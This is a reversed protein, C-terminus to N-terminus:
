AAIIEARCDGHDNIPSERFHHPEVQERYVQEGENEAGGGVGGTGDPSLELSQSSNGYSLFQNRKYRASRKSSNITNYGGRPTVYRPTFLSNNFVSSPTLVTDTRSTNLMNNGDVGSSSSSVPAGSFSSPEFQLQSQPGLAGAAGPPGAVVSPLTTSSTTATTLVASTGIGYNNGYSGAQGASGTATQWPTPRNYRDRYNPDGFSTSLFSASLLSHAQAYMSDPAAPSQPISSPPLNEVSNRLFSSQELPTDSLFSTTTTGQQPAQAAGAGFSTPPGVPPQQSMAGAPANATSGGVLFSGANSATAGGSSSTTHSLYPAFQTAPSAALPTTTTPVLRQQNHAGPSSCAAASGPGAFPNKTPKSSSSSSVSSSSTGGYMVDLKPSHSLRVQHYSGLDSQTCNDLMRSQNSQQGGRVPPLAGVVTSSRSHNIAAPPARLPRNANASLSASPLTEALPTPIPRLGNKDDVRVGHSLYSMTGIDLEPRSTAAALNDEVTTSPVDGAGAAAPTAKRPRQLEPKIGDSLRPEDPIAALRPASVSYTAGGQEHQTAVIGKSVSRSNHHDGGFNYGSDPSAASPPSSSCSSASASSSSSKSITHDSLTPRLELATTSLTRGFGAFSGEVTQVGAASQASPGCSVSHSNYYGNGDGPAGAERVPGWLGSSSCSSAASSSGVCSSSFLGDPPSAPTENTHAGEKLPSSKEKKKKGGIQFLDMGFKKKKKESTSTGEIFDVADDLPGSHLDPSQSSSSVSSKKKDKKKKKSSSTPSATSDRATTGEAFNEAGAETSTASKTNGVQPTSTTDVHLDRSASAPTASADADVSNDAGTTAQAQKNSTKKGQFVSSLFNNMKSKSQPAGASPAGSAAQEQETREQTDHDARVVTEAISTDKQRPTVSQTKAREKSSTASRNTMILNLRGALSTPQAAASAGPPVSCTGAAGAEEQEQEQHSKPKAEELVAAKAKEPTTSDAARATKKGGRSLMNSFLNRKSSSESRAQEQKEKEASQTRPETTSQETQDASKQDNAFQQQQLEAPAAGTLLVAEEEVELVVPSNNKSSERSPKRFWSESPTADDQDTLGGRASASASNTGANAAGTGGGAPLKMKNGARQMMNGMRSLLSRKRSAESGAISATGDDENLDLPIMNDAVDSPRRSPTPSVEQLNKDKTSMAKTLNTKMKSFATGMKTAATQKKSSSSMTEKKHDEEEAAPVVELTAPLIEDEGTTRQMQQEVVAFVDNELVRKDEPAGDDEGLDIEDVKSSPAALLVAAGTTTSTTTSNIGLTVDDPKIAVIETRSPLHGAHYNKNPDEHQNIRADGEVNNDVVEEYESFYPMRNTITEHLQGSSSARHDDPHVDLQQAVLDNEADFATEYDYEAPTRRRRPHDDEIEKEHLQDGGDHVQVYNENSAPPMQLTQEESTRLGKEPSAINFMEPGTTANKGNAALVEVHPEQSVEQRVTVGERGALVIAPEPAGSVVPEQHQATSATQQKMEEPSDHNYNEQRAAFEFENQDQEPPPPPRLQVETSNQKPNYMMMGAAAPVAGYNRKGAARYSPTISVSRSRAELLDVVKKMQTMGERLVTRQAQHGELLLRFRHASESRERSQGRKLLEQMFKSRQQKDDSTATTPTTASTSSTRPRTTSRMQQGGGSQNNNRTNGALVATPSAATRGAPSQFQYPNNSTDHHDDASTYPAFNGHRESTAVSPFMNVEVLKQVTLFRQRHRAFEQQQQQVFIKQTEVQVYNQFAARESALAQERQQLDHFHQQHTHEVATNLTQSKETVSSRAADLEGELQTVLSLLEQERARYQTDAVLRPLLATQVSSLAATSAKLVEADEKERDTLNKELSRIVEQMKVFQKKYKRKRKNEEKELVRREAQIRREFLRKLDTDATLPDEHHYFAPPEQQSRHSVDQQPSGRINSATKSNSSTPQPGAGTADDNEEKNMKGGARLEELLANLDARLEANERQLEEMDNTVGPASISDVDDALVPLKGITNAQQSSSETQGTAAAASGPPPRSRGRRIREAFQKM